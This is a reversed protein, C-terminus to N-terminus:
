RVDALVSLLGSVPAEQSQIEPQSPLVGPSQYSRPPTEVRTLSNMWTGEEPVM